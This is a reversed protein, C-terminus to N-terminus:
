TLVQGGTLLVVDENLSSREGVHDFVLTAAPLGAPVEDVDGEEILPAVAIIVWLELKIGLVNGDGDWPDNVPEASGGSILVAKNVGGNHVSNLLVLLSAFGIGDAQEDVIESVHVLGHV